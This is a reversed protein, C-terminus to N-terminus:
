HQAQNHYHFTLKLRNLLPTLVYRKQKQQNLLYRKLEQGLTDQIYFRFLKLPRLSKNLAMILLFYNEAPNQFFGVQFLLFLLILTGLNGLYGSLHPQQNLIKDFLLQNQSFTRYKLRCRGLM